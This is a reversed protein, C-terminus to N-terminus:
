ESTDNSGGINIIAHIIRESLANYSNLAKQAQEFAERKNEEARMEM